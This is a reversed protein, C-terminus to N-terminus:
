HRRKGTATKGDIKPVRTVQPHAKNRTLISYTWRYVIMIFFAVLSWTALDAFFGIVLFKPQTLIIMADPPIPGLVAFIRLLWAMPFGYQHAVAFGARIMESYGDAAASDSQVVTEYLGSLLTALLGAATPLIVQSKRLRTM